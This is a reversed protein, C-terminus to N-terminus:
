IKKGMTGDSNIAVEGTLGYEYWWMEIGEMFETDPSPIAESMCGLANGIDHVLTAKEVTLLGQARKAEEVHAAQTELVKMMSPGTSAGKNKTSGKFKSSPSPLMKPRANLKFQASESMMCLLAKVKYCDKREKLLWPVGADNPLAFRMIKVIVHALEPLWPQFYMTIAKNIAYVNSNNLTRTTYECHTDVWRRYSDWVAHEKNTLLKVVVKANDYDTWTQFRDPYNQQLWAFYAKEYGSQTRAKKRPGAGIDVDDDVVPDVEDAVARAEKAECDQLEKLKEKKDRNEAQRKKKWNAEMQKIETYCEMFTIGVALANFENGAAVFFKAIDPPSRYFILPM